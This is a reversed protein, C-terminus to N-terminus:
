DGKSTVKTNSHVSEGKPEVETGDPLGYAGSAVIQQGAKLGSVIEVLKGNQIGTTVPVRKVKGGEFIYIMKEDPSTPDSVLASIPVTVAHPHVATVLTVFVPMGEKLASDPNGCLIRVGVTTGQNDTVPNISQVIGVFKHDPLAKATIAANQGSVIKAPQTTPLSAEVVVKSLDVIQAIATNTDASDSRNLYRQAVVGTIPSKVITYTLQAQAAAEAAIADDVQAQAAELQARATDVQSRAAVLDKMAGVDNQVLKLNRAETDKALLLTSKAQEVGAKAALVKAHAQNVQGRLQRSDLTAIVQGQTVQQGPEIKVDTLKGSTGPSVKVSRDPLAFVQGPLTLQDSLSQITSKTIPLALKPPETKEETKAERKQCSDLSLVVLSVM